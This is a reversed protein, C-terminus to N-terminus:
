PGVSTVDWSYCYFIADCARIEPRTLLCSTRMYNWDRETQCNHVRARDVEADLRVSSLPLLAVCRRPAWIGSVSKQSNRQDASPDYVQWYALDLRKRVQAIIMWENFMMSQFSSHSPLSNRCLIRARILHCVGRVNPEFSKLERHAMSNEMYLSLACLSRGFRVRCVM